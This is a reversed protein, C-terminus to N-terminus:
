SADVLLSGQQEALREALLHGFRLPRQRLFAARRRRGAGDSRLRNQAKEPNGRRFFDPLRITAANFQRWFYKCNPVSFCAQTASATQQRQTDGFCRRPCGHRRNTLLEVGAQVNKKRRAVRWSNM